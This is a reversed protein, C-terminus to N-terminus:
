KLLETKLKKLAQLRQYGVTRPACKLKKAIAEHSKNAFYYLWLIKLQRPTLNKLAQALAINMLLNQLPNYSANSDSEHHELDLVENDWVQGNNSVCHNIEYYLHCQILGPLNKYDAGNYRHIFSLFITWATNIGDEGM